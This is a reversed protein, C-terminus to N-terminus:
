MKKFFMNDDDDENDYDYEDDDDDVDYVNYGNDDDYNFHIVGRGGLAFKTHSGKPHLFCIMIMMTMMIMIMM